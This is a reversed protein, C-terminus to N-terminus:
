LFAALAVALGLKLDSQMLVTGFAALAGGLALASMGGIIWPTRRRGGDSGHGWRPRLIQVAYHLTMLVGPVLAPLGIEVVMVRNLTSTAIVVVAGISTQVLGIRVIDLWSLAVPKDNM